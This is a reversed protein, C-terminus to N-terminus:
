SQEMLFSAVSSRASAVSSVSHTRKTKSTDITKVWDSILDSGNAYSRTPEVVRTSVVAPADEQAGDSAKKTDDDGGVGDMPQALVISGDLDPRESVIRPGETNNQAVDKRTASIFESETFEEEEEGKINNEGEGEGEVEEEEEVDEDNPEGGDKNREVDETSRPITAEGNREGGVTHDSSAGEDDSAHESVTDEDSVSRSDDETDEESEGETYMHVSDSVASQTDYVTSAVSAPRKGDGTSTRASKKSSVSSSKRSVVVSGTASPAGSATGDHRSGQNNPSGRRVSDESVGDDVIPRSEMVSEEIAANNDDKGTRLRAASPQRSSAVSNAPTNAISNIVSDIVSVRGNDESSQSSANDAAEAARDRESEARVSNNVVGSMRRDRMADLEEIIKEFPLMNNCAKIISLRAFRDLREVSPFDQSNGNGGLFELIHKSIGIIALRVFETTINQRLVRDTAEEDLGVHECRLCVISCLMKHLGPCAKKIARAETSFDKHSWKPIVTLVQRWMETCASMRVIPSYHECVRAYYHRFTDQLEDSCESVVANHLCELASNIAKDDSM